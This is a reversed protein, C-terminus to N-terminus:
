GGNEEIIEDKLDRNVAISANLEFGVLLIFCNIQIWLMMVMITGIPGYIKNYTGFNEVYFSFLLSSIISLITALTAGPTLWKFRKHMAAGYRYITAVGLYFLLVFIVWRFTEFLMEGSLTLNLGDVIWRIIYKGLIILFISSMVLVGLQLTLAVAIVRKIMVNWTKFSKLHTKEFGEMMSLMGNSSFYLTLIFGISLVKTDPKVLNQITSKLETGANSPMINDIYANLEVQFNEYIPLLTAVTFLFIIAPFLSLFFSFAMANARSVMTVRQSENYLFVIVDYFPVRFFGPFSHKKSWKLVQEVVPHKLFWESIKESFTIKRNM